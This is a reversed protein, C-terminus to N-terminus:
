GWWYHPPGFRCGARSPRSKATPTASSWSPSWPRPRRSKRCTTSRRGCREKPPEVVGKMLPVRFEEVRFFGSQWGDVYDSGEYEEEGSKNRKVTAKKSLYVDYFGLEAGKPVTMKTEAISHETFEDGPINFRWNEIGRDWSSHVFTLDDKKRAFVFLGSSIGQLMPQNNDTYYDENKESEKEDRCFPLQRSLQKKVRAIGDGDTKGQWQLKGKCDRINVEAGAVPLGKDLTTVWVLSSERGWKFHASMNTVLAASSVYMPRPKELLAAGLVPSELEVVHFGPKSIPIGVM